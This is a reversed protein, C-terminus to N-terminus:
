PIPNLILTDPVTPTFIALQAPRIGGQEHDALNADVWPAPAPPVSRPPKLIDSVAKAMESLTLLQRRGGSQAQKEPIGGFADVDVYAVGRVGQMVSIVESLLV